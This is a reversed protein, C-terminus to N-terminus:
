QQSKARVEADGPIQLAGAFRWNYDFSGSVVRLDEPSASQNSAPAHGDLIVYDWPLMEQPNTEIFNMGSPSTGALIWLYREANAPNPYVMQVAADRVKFEHGDIRVSNDSVRLPVKSAFKAAVRNADAGGILMLSYRKMDADTIETDIFVRPTHKQWDKWADVFM